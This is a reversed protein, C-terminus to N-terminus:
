MNSRTLNKAKFIQKNKYYKKNKNDNIKKINKAGNSYIQNNM